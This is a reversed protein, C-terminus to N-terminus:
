KTTNRFVLNTKITKVKSKNASKSKIRELLLDVSAKGIDMAHQSITSLKPETFPLVNEDSFGIISLDKPVDIGKKLAKHLAVVGTTNDISLIGDVKPHKKFMEEIPHEIDDDKGINIVIPKSKYKPAEELAKLYGNVRLKGVSLEEINSLLVIQKRGEDLLHETAEYAAGFDDIIVKDCDVNDAVRDFMVVPIGQQVVSEIHQSQNKIQTEEAISLIFGDVSGNGLVELSQLEKAYSEHSICIIIDYGKKTAEEEIGYLVKAFFHNLINPIIVGLTKTKNSKLSLAVKNPQYNLQKALVKVREITEKSIEESEHLAKSVTSVSVNLQEALQKLTVM